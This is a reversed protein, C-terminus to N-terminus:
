SRGLEKIKEINLSYKVYSDYKQCKILGMKELKELSHIIKQQHLGSFIISGKAYNSRKSLLSLGFYSIASTTQREMMFADHALCELLIKDETRMRTKKYGLKILNNVLKMFGDVTNTTLQKDTLTM